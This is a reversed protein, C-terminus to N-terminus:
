KKMLIKNKLAALDFNKVGDVYVGLKECLVGGYVKKVFILLYILTILIAFQLIEQKNTKIHNNLYSLASQISTKLKTLKCQKQGKTQTKDEDIEKQVIQEESKKDETVEQQEENENEDGSDVSLDDSESSEETNEQSDTENNPDFDPDESETDFNITTTVEPLSAQITSSIVAAAEPLEEDASFQDDKTLPVIFKETNVNKTKLPSKKPSKEVKEIDKVKESQINVNTLAEEDASFDMPNVLGPVVGSDKEASKQEKEEKEQQKEQQHKTREKLFLRNEWAHRTKENIPGPNLSFKKCADRLESTSYGEIKAKLLSEFTKDPKVM